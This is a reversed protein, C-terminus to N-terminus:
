SGRQRPARFRAPLLRALLDLGRLGLYRPVFVAAASASDLLPLVAAQRLRYPLSWPSGLGAPAVVRGALRHIWPRPALADAIAPDMPRLGAESLGALLLYTVTSARWARATAILRQPEPPHRVVLRCADVLTRPSFAAHTFAHVALYVLTDDPCLVRVRPDSLRSWPVTRAWVAAEDVPFLRPETFAGHLDVDVPLAGGFRFTREFLRARSAQRGADFAPEGGIRVLLAEIAHQDRERVVLDLDASRRPASPEYLVGRFAAGKLLVVPVDAPWVPLLRRLLFRELVLDARVADDRERRLSDRLAPELPDWAGVRRLGEVLPGVLPRLLGETERSIANSFESGTPVAGCPTLGSALALLWRRVDDRTPSTLPLDM